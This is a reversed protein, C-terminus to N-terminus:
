AGVLEKAASVVRDANPVYFREMPPSFPVPTHPATVMRPPADLYHFGKTAILAVIDTAMSCRPNDEDVVVVRSTKGVSELLLAEDLPSISRPDVVEVSVGEGELAAAAELAVSVMRSLAIVTVDSGERVVSGKGIEVVHDGDPVPGEVDYLVKNEFYMVPDDDRIAAKLLGKADAPNSPVVCKLGPIHTLIAYNVNSHHAAACMGAGIMTRIVVPVHTKGGFMYRLKAAQNGIQDLCVGAFSVFMLEAVPRLGTAAAGIAAGMIASETIPTDLVREKGFRDVLGKTVGLIGGWADLMAPDDSQPAGAIDEGLIIVREDREMEECLAENIAQRYSITREAM